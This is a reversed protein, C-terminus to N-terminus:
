LEQGVVAGLEKAASKGQVVLELFRKEGLGSSGIICAVEDDPVDKLRDYMTFERGMLAITEGAQWDVDEKTLATKCNGFNDIWWIVKPVDAVNDFSYTEGPLDKRYNAIFQAVRPVFNFSRFQTEIIRDGAEQSLMGYEVFVPVSTHMDLIRLSDALGLKKVLSLTYGSVTAIVLTNQYWFYGFPTGNEFQKAAGFRPAVNVLLMTESDGAADLMDIVNGAAALSDYQPVGVYTVPLGLLAGVRFGQRGRTNDDSCDNVIGVAKPQFNEYDM